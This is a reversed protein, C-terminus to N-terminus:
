GPHCEHTHHVLRCWWVAEQQSRGSPGTTLFLIGGQPTPSIPEIGPQPGLIGCATSCSLRCVAVVSSTREPSPMSCSSLLWLAARFIGRAEVLFEYVWVFLFGFMKRTLLYSGLSSWLCRVAFELTLLLWLLQRWNKTDRKGLMIGIQQYNRM